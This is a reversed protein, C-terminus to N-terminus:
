TPGDARADDGVAVLDTRFSYKPAAVDALATRM